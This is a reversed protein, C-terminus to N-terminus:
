AAPVVCGGYREVLGVHPASVRVEMSWGEPTASTTAEISPALWRPVRLGAFSYSVSAFSMGTEEARVDFAITALGARELLRGGKFRQVTDFRAAGFRRQWREGERLATVDLFVAVNDGAPPLGFTRAVLASFWGPTRRVTFTGTATAHASAHFRQMILPLRAFSAGLLQEYLHM